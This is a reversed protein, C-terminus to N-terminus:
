WHKNHLLIMARVSFLGHPSEKVLKQILCPIAIMKYGSLKFTPMAPRRGRFSTTRVGRVM